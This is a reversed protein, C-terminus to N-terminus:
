ILVKFIKVTANTSAADTITVQLVANTSATTASVVVGSMTGGTETIGFETLDVSTGDTQIIVESSRVKSGQKISVM